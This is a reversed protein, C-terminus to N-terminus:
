KYRKSVVLTHQGGGSIQFGLANHGLHKKLDLKTPVFIDEDGVTKHGTPGTTGFGWTYVENETSLALSHRDGCAIDSLIVRETGPFKVPTPVLMSSGKPMSQEGPKRTDIGLAGYDARGFSYLVTGDSNLAMSFHEGAAVKVINEHELAKVQITIFSANSFSFRWTLTETYVLWV